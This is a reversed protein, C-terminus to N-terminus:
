YDDNQNNEGNYYDDNQNNEGNNYYGTNGYDNANCSLNFGCMKALMLYILLLVFGLLILKYRMVKTRMVRKLQTSRKNFVQGEIMLDDSFEVMEELANGRRMLVELNCDMTKKITEIEATLQSTKPDTGLSQRHTNNYHMLNSITKGFVKDFQYANAKEIKGPSYKNTFEKQTDILFGFNVKQSRQEKDDSLCVYFENQGRLVHFYNELSRCEGDTNDGGKRGFPSWFDQTDSQEIDNEESGIHAFTKRNGVTPALQPKDLLAEMLQQMVIPHNGEIGGTTAEALIAGDSSRAIITYLIMKTILKISKITNIKSPVPLSLRPLFVL